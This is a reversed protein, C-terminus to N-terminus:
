AEGKYSVINSAQIRSLDAMVTKGLLLSCNISDLHSYFPDGDEKYAKTVHIRPVIEVSSFLSCSVSKPHRQPITTVNFCRYATAFGKWHHQLGRECYPSGDSGDM